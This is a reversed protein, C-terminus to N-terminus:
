SVHLYTAYFEDGIATFPLLRLTGTSTATQWASGSNGVPVAALLQRRTIAPAAPTIAFLVRPGAQLAVVDPHQEDVPKLYLPMPLELEVQDGSHWVRRVAAFTGPLILTDMRKGNVRLEAGRTWSPIRFSLTTETPRSAEISFLIHSDDPYAGSQNLRFATGDQTWRATSPIYLNTVVGQAERFYISIHYDAAIQPLTGSCCPWPNRYYVKRGTFNYDSYYFARGDLQLPKAGLVTNLMVQEMSDGYEPNRTVRLLYRTLKFHAYAGCPTEFSAHTTDLSDGLKGEHAPQFMEDPGWGGTAFSQSTRIMRFANSAALLHKQSGLTLYAQMASSLANMYSYAHKGALVDRNESLPDFYTDDKLYRKGLARFREGAGRQFALFLNEPLTYSEDWCFSEDKPGSAEHPLSCMEAGRDLARAPLHPLAADTTEELVTLGDARGCLQKADICALVLKDYTYAPFRAHDYFRGSITARYGSFLRDVKALAEPSGTAAYGRTLASIWQGFTAGPAFGHDISHIYDYGAFEDYWGGLDPGPAFLGSRKRFPKLLSDEDLALLVAQTQEFQSRQPTSALSVQGYGFEQLLEAPM